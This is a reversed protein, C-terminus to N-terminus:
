DDLRENRKRKDDSGSDDNGGIDGDVDGKRGDLSVEGVYGHSPSIVLLRHANSSTLCTQWM